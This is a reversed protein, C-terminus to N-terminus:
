AHSHYGDYTKVCGYQYGILNDEADAATKIAFTDLADKVSMKNDTWYKIIADFSEQDAFLTEESDGLRMTANSKRMGRLGNEERGQLVFLTDGAKDAMAFDYGLVDREYQSMAAILGGGDKLKRNARNFCIVLRLPEFETCFNFDGTSDMFGAVPGHNSYRPLIANVIATTKGVGQTQAKTPLSDRTWGGGEEALWGCGSEYDYHHVYKGDEVVNTMAIMGTCYPHLDWADIAARIPDTASASCVWVDIGNEDLVQWLEKVNESVCTGMYYSVEMQGAESVIEPSTWTDKRTEVDNYMTHSAYALDYVEQETMGTFWYLIWPYSVDASEADGVFGYMVRMKTAFEMWQDDKQIEEQKAEDLGQATFPGYQDYLYTYAKVIDNIVARYSVAEEKLTYEEGEERVEDLDGLGEELIAPLEQPTFAFTMTNLQHIALQEEVDFISCTNDFDFVVYPDEYSDSAMGYSDVFDNIAAKVDDAWDAHKVHVAMFAEEMESQSKSDTQSKSMSDSQSESMSESMSKSMSDEKAQEKEKCAAFPLVLVLTLLLALLKKM